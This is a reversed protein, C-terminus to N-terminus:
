GKLGTLAIGRTFHRQFIFFFLVTPITTLLSGAMVIGISQPNLDQNSNLRALAVPLTAMADTQSIILPWLFNNWEGIVVFVAMAALAPRLLPMVVSWWIRWDGAGDVKAAQCLEDPISRMYQVLFFVVFAKPLAPIIYAQYSDLWGLNRVILFNPILAVQWPIMMSAVVVLFIAQRGPLKTKTLAYAALSALLLTGAAVVTTILVSNGFFRWFGLDITPFSELLGPAGSINETTPSEPVLTPQYRMLESAPKFAGTVMWYFPVLMPVALLYFPLRVLFRWPSRRRPAPRPVPDSPPSQVPPAPAQLTTM